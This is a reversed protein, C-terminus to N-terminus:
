RSAFILTSNNETYNKLCPCITAIISTKCNGGLSEALLRTLKTDRYPIHVSNNSSLGNTPEQSNNCLAHICNGLAAISKNIQCAEQFHRKSTFKYSQPRESGALDVLTLTRRRMTYKKEILNNRDPSQIDFSENEENPEEFDLHFQLIAHSRSSRINQYTSQVHRNKLGQSIIQLAIDRNKVYLHRLNDIYIGRQSDERIQLNPIILQKNTEADLLLDYIQDIYIQYFSIFVRAVLERKEHEVVAQFIQELSLHALGCVKDGNDSGFMTYTKGSGSQGYVMGTGNYGKLVDRVIPKFSLDYIEQQSVSSDFAHDVKFTKEHHLDRTLKISQGDRKVQVCLDVKSQVKAGEQIYDEQIIPRLRVCISIESKKLEFSSTTNM